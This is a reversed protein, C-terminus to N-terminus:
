LLYSVNYTGGRRKSDRHETVMAIRNSEAISLLDALTNIAIEQHEFIRDNYNVNGGFYVLFNTWKFFDPGEDLPPPLQPRKPWDVLILSGKDSKLHYKGCLLPNDTFLRFKGSNVFFDRIEEPSAGMYFIQDSYPFNSQMYNILRVGSMRDFDRSAFRNKYVDISERITKIRSQKTM